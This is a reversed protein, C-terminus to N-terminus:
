WLLRRFYLYASACILLCLQIAAGQHAPLLLFPVRGDCDLACGQQHNSGQSCGAQRSRSRAEQHKCKQKNALVFAFPTLFTTCVTLLNVRQCFPLRACVCHGHSVHICVGRTFAQVGSAITSVIECPVFPPTRVVWDQAEPQPALM